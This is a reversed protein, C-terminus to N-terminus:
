CCGEGNCSCPKTFTAEDITMTVHEIGAELYVDSTRKFGIRSYFAEVQVQAHVVVQPAKLAFARTCLMRVILDGYKLGRFAKLVAIRGILYQEDKYILRGTGVIDNGDKIILHHAFDDYADREISAEVGQEGTFVLSRIYGTDELGKTGIVFNGEIM